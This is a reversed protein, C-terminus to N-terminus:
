AVGAVIFRAARMIGPRIASVSDTGTLRRLEARGSQVTLLTNQPDIPM